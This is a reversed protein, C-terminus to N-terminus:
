GLVTLECRLGSSPSRWARELLPEYGWTRLPEHVPEGGYGCVILRGDPALLRTRLREVYARPDAAYVLETRVFDFRRPPEWTVADGVFFRDAWHPLRRRAEAVLRAAFDVGYPELEHESWAVLSELLLGNACGVDLFTGPGDIAEVIPRRVAEWSAADGSHGSGGYPTEAALYHAEYLEAPWPDELRGAWIGGYWRAYFRLLEQETEGWDYAPSTLEELLEVRVLVFRSARGGLEHGQTAYWALLHELEEGGDVVRGTGKFRYGRRTGVDVVNVEIAPNGRLNAITRPSRIDAFVLHDDDYALTTGKPSLNPTGDPCVTAAFGLRVERVLRKVEESLV